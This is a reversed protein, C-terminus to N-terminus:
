ACVPIDDVDFIGLGMWEAIMREITAGTSNEAGPLVALANANRMSKLSCLLYDLWMPERQEIAYLVDVRDRNRAPNIVVHGKALIDAEAKYFEDFNFGPIGSMPGSIYVIM